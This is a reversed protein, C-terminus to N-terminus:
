PSTKGATGPASLEGSAVAGRGHAELSWGGLLGLGLAAAMVVALWCLTTDQVRRVFGAGPNLRGCWQWAGALLLMNCLLFAPAALIDELFTM